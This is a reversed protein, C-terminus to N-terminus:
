VRLCTPRTEPCSVLHDTSHIRTHTGHRVTGYPPTTSSVQVDFDYYKRQGLPPLETGNRIHRTVVSRGTMHMHYVSGMLTVPQPFQRTCAAPCLNPVTSWSPAGPPVAITNSGLVLVAADNPRLSPTYFVRLGSSDVQPRQSHPAPCCPAASSRKHTHTHTPLPHSPSVTSPTCATRRCVRPSTPHTGDGYYVSNCPPVM